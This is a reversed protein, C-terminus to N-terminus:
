ARPLSARDGRLAAAHVLILLLSVGSWLYVFLSLVLSWQMLGNTFVGMLLAFKGAESWLYREDGELLKGVNLMSWLVVAFSFGLQVPGSSQQVWYVGIGALTTFLTQLLAYGTLFRSLKPHFVYNSRADLPDKDSADYPAGLLAILAQKISKAKLMREIISKYVVTNLWLPNFSKVSRTVGYKTVMRKDERVFTGFLIDWVILISGFNKDLYQENSAHHVSHNSPTVLVFDLVGLSPVLKTHIIFQYFLHIFNCAIMVEPPVGVLAIPTFFIWSLSGGTIPQRFATTLNFDESHHHTAHSAWMFNIKHEAYHYVYSLFDFMVMAVVWTVWSEKTLEFLHFHDYTFTYIIFAGSAYLATYLMMSLGMFISTVTDSLRHTRKRMLGSICLETLAISLFIIVPIAGAPIDSM